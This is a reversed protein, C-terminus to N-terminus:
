HNYHVIPMHSCLQLATDVVFSYAISYYESKSLSAAILHFHRSFPAKLFVWTIKIQESGCCGCSVFHLFLDHQVSIMASLYWSGSSLGRRKLWGEQWPSPLSEARSPSPLWARDASAPKMCISLSRLPRGLDLRVQFCGLSHVSSWFVACM